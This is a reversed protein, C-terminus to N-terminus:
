GSFPRDRLWLSAIWKEGREIKQGEHRVSYDLAGNEDVNDFILIDGRNGVFSIAPALFHTAGGVYGENLYLLATKLRQGHAGLDPDNPGLFDHHPRYEQGPVYRLISLPEGHSYPIRALRAM